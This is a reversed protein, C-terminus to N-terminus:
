AAPKLGTKRAESLEAAKGRACQPPMGRRNQFEQHDSGKEGNHDQHRCAKRRGGPRLIRGRREIAIQLPQGLDEAGQVIQAADAAGVLAGFPAVLHLRQDIGFGGRAVAPRAHHRAEIAAVVAELLGVPGARRCSGDRDAAVDLFARFDRAVQRGAIGVSRAIKKSRSPVRVSGFGPM